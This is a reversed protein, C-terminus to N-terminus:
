VSLFGIFHSFFFDKFKRANDRFQQRIRSEPHLEFILM